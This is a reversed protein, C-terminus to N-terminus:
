GASRSIFFIERKLVRPFDKMLREFPWLFGADPCLRADPDHRVRRPLLAAAGLNEPVPEQHLELSINAYGLQRMDGFGRNFYRARNM